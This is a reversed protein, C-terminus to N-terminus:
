ASTVYAAHRSFMHLAGAVLEWMIALERAELPPAADACFAAVGSSGAQPSVYTRATQRLSCLLTLTPGSLHQWTSVALARNDPSWKLDAVSGTAEPGHGWDLLSVVRVPAEKIGDASFRARQSGQVLLRSLENVQLLVAQDCGKGFEQLM